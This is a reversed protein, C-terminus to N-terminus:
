PVHMYKQSLDLNLKLLFTSVLPLLTTVNKGPLLNGIQVVLNLWNIQLSHDLSCNAWDERQRNAKKSFLYCTGVKNVELCM